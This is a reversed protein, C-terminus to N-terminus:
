YFGGTNKIFLHPYAFLLFVYRRIKTKGFLEKTMAKRHWRGQYPLCFLFLVASRHRFLM